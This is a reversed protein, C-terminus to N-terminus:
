RKLAYHTLLHLKIDVRCTIPWETSLFVLRKCTSVRDGLFLRIEAYYIASLVGFRQDIFSTVQIITM